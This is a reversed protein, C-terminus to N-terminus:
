RKKGYHSNDLEILVIKIGGEFEKFIIREVRGNIVRVSSCGSYNAKLKEYHLTSINRLVETNEAACLTQYTAILATMFRTDRSYQKYKKSYGSAILMELDKDDFEVFM